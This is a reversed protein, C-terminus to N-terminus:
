WTALGELAGWAKEAAETAKNYNIVLEEVHRLAKESEYAWKAYNGNGHSNGYKELWHAYDFRNDGGPYADSHYNIMVDYADSYPIVAATTNTSTNWVRIANWSYETKWYVSFGEGLQAEVANALRKNILKGQYKQLVACVITHVAAKAHLLAIREETKARVESIDLHDKRSM